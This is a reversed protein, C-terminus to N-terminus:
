RRVFVKGVREECLGLLELRLLANALGAADLGSKPLLEDFQTPSDGLAEYVPRLEPPVSDARKCARKGNSPLRVPKCRSRPMSARPLPALLAPWEAEIGLADGIPKVGSIARASGQEILGNVGGALECTVDGPIAFTPRKLEVAARATGLAGSSSSARAVLVADALGAILRNRVKFNQPVAPTGPPFLSVLAGARAQIEKFLLGHESPYCIDVGCGLVALSSGGNGLAARHAAGDVGIAGGSVIEVGERALAGSFFAALECGYEDSERSGVIAVRKKDAAVTGSVYLLPPFSAGALQKPWGQRGPFLIRAGAKEAKGLCRLALERWDANRSLRARTPEDRLAGLVRERPAGIAESLSGFTERLGRLTVPGIGEVSFFALTALEEEGLPSEATRERLEADPRM